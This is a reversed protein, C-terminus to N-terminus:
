FTFDLVASYINAKGDWSVPVTPWLLPPACSRDTGVVPLNLPSCNRTRIMDMQFKLAVNAMLDYRVGLSYTHQINQGTTLMFNTISPIPDSIPVNMRAAVEDARNSKVSRVASVVAYPTFKGFRYGASIFGSHSEPFLLSQSTWHNLAMQTQLPGNEYALGISTFSINKGVLSFDSAL